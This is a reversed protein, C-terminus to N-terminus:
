ISFFIFFEIKIFFNPKVFFSILLNLRKFEVSFGLLVLQM